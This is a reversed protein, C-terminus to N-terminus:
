GVLHRFAEDPNLSHGEQQFQSYSGKFIIRGQHLLFIECDLFELEHLNHTSLIITNEQQNLVEIKNFIKLRSEPDVGSTPEDFIYVKRKLECLATIILWRREGVSMDGFRTFWLRQMTEKEKEDMSELVLPQEMKKYSAHYDCNILFKVIDKGKLSGLFPVNQVQYLVDESNPFNRIGCNVSHIGVLLDFLTTKGAGNLGVIVNIRKSSFTACLNNLIYRESKPYHFSVNELTIM